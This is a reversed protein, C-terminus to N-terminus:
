NCKYAILEIILLLISILIGSMILIFPGIIQGFSIPNFPEEPCSEFSPFFRKFEASLIGTEKLLLIKYNFYDVYEFQKSYAIRGFERDIFHPAVAFSCNRHILHQVNLLSSLFGFKESYIVEIAKKSSKVKLVTRNEYPPKMFIEELKHGYTIVPLFNKKELMDELSSFPIKMKTTALLSTLVSSYSFLILMSFAVYIAFVFKISKLSICNLNGLLVFPWCLLFENIFNIVCDTCNKKKLRKNALIKVLIVILSIAFICWIKMNCPQLYFSYNWEHQDLRRYIVDFQIPFLPPSFNIYNKRLRTMVLGCAIDASENTLDGIWSNRDLKWQCVIWITQRQMSNDEFTHFNNLIQGFYGGIQSSNSLTILPPSSQNHCNLQLLFYKGLFEATDISLWKYELYQFEIKTVPKELNDIYIPCM